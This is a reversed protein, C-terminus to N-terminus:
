NAPNELTVQRVWAGRATEENAALPTGFEPVLHLRGVQASASALGGVGRLLGMAERTMRQAPQDLTPPPLSAFLQEFATWRDPSAFILFHERGGASTVQWTIENGNVRGPLRHRQGAPLPNMQAQSPLPFLLYSEGREDENVVYVHVPASTQLQLSLTDGPALRMDPQLRVEAGERGVYLGAEIRYESASGAAATPLGGGAMPPQDTATGSPAPNEVRYLAATGALATAVLVGAAILATRRWTRPNSVPKLVASPLIEALAMEFAGASQYREEPDEVLARDVVRIFGDPLDPRVDRLPIRARPQTHRRGIETLTAGTVPYSGSVLFYLLVGLSYVDSARTRRHGAFVEPALYIPTGAFDDDPYRGDHRLERGAGFDMLVTRGGTERMVNRAKIDGHLTGAAHVAALARCLDLGILIAENAGFLGQREVLEELTDGAILEMSIAVEDGIREARYVRVVNPHSIKALLRAEKLARSLDIPTEGRPQIVKLAVELQLNPDVAKYVTGFSGRGIEKELVFPGWSTPAIASVRGVGELVRLEDIITTQDSTTGRRVEDWDIPTGDAIAAAISLLQPDDASAIM